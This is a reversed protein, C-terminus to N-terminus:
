FGRLFRLARVLPPANPADMNVWPNPMGSIAFAVSTIAMAWFTYRFWVVERWRAYGRIAYFALLPTFGIYYRMGFSHGGFNTPARFSVYAFVMAMAGLCVAAAWQRGRADGPSEAGEDEEDAAVRRCAHSAGRLDDLLAAAGILLVPSLVFLGRMSFLTLLWYRSRSIAWTDPGLRNSWYSFPYDRSTKVFQAPLVTGFAPVQYLSHAALPLLGAACFAAACKISRQRILVYVGFAISFFFGPGCDIMTALSCAFGAMAASVPSVQRAGKHMGLCFFAILILLAPLVHHNITGAYSLFLSGGLTGLVALQGTWGSGTDDMHRRLVYFGLMAPLGSWLFTLLWVARGGPLKLPVGMAELARASAAMMASLLPPKSSYLKGDHQLMDILMYQGHGARQIIELAPSSPQLELTGHRVLSEVAALRSFVNQGNIRGQTCVLVLLLLVSFRLYGPLISSRM